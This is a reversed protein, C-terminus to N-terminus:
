WFHDNFIKAIRTVRIKFYDIQKLGSSMNNFKIRLNGWRQGIPVGESQRKLGKSMVEQEHVKIIAKREQM